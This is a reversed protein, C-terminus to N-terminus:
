SPPTDSRNSSVGGGMERTRRFSGALLEVRLLASGHVVAFPRQQHHGARAGALRADNGLADAVQEFGIGFQGAFGDEAQGEGVFRRRFHLMADRAGGALAASRDEEARKMRKAVRQQELAIGLQLREFLLIM